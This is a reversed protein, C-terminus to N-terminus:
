TAFSRKRNEGRHIIGERGKWSTGDIRQYLWLVFLLQLADKGVMYYCAFHHGTIQCIAHGSLSDISCVDRDMQFITLNQDIIRFHYNCIYLGVVPDHMSDILDDHRSLPM